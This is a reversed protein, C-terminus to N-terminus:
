TDLDRKMVVRLDIRLGITKESEIIMLLGPTLLAPEIIEFGHRRYFPGNWPVDRFTSLTIAPYGKERAWDFAAEILAAGLGQRGHEPHVDIEELHALGDVEILLAFGVVRDDSEAAVLLRGEQEARALTEISNVRLTTLDLDLMESWGAFLTAAEREIDPLGPVDEPRAPRIKYPTIKM